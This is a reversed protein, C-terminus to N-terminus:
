KKVKEKGEKCWEEEMKKHEKKEENVIRNV